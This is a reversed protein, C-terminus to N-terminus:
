GAKLLSTDLDPWMATDGQQYAAGGISGADYGSYNLLVPFRGSAAPLLVSYHLLTGGQAPFYGTIRKAWPLADASASGALSWGVAAIVLVLSCWVPLRRRGGADRGSM